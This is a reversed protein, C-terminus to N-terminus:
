NATFKVIEHPIPDLSQLYTYIARLDKEEMGAYMMWPMPTNMDKPGIKHPTYGSDAYMKFRKVFADESWSGIGTKKDPTINASVVTGSPIQFQMGGGFETGPIKAGKETQSHCEVCAAATVLYKGTALVDSEAPRKGPSAKAPMTNIIFNVPFDAESEPVENKVPELTRLYAIISYVDEVDMKGYAHYPMVPFLAKGDKNVGTTIAHFIEGDTWKGLGYPTINRSNFNGPFGMEKSFKEGGGGFNGLVLPGAFLDQARTSHCDMCVTVHNALYKGREVRSPSSKITIKPPEGTYPLMTKTYTGAAIAALLLALAIYGAIKLLRM